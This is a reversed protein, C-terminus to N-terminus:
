QELRAADVHRWERRVGEEQVHQRGNDQVGTVKHGVPQEEVVQPRYEEEGDNPSYKVRQRYTPLVYLLSVTDRTPTPM